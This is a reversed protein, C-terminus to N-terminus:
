YKLTINEKDLNEIVLNDGSGKRDVV